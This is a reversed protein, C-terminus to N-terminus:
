GTPFAPRPAEVEAAHRSAIRDAADARGTDRLRELYPGLRGRVHWGGGEALVTDLPDVGSATRSLCDDRWAALLDDCDAVVDPRDAALDTQEHPDAVVDYLAVEPLDHYGDHYTRLCLWDGVRVSRQVTWAAQSVVLHPRGGSGTAFSRGDWGEPVNGGLQELATAALDVQYHLDADVSGPTAWEAGPWRVVAPLRSVAQDATQHDCYIGLEGLTEGHDASVLIATEDYVGLDTLLDLARGIHDDAYRVGTDYGDFMRRVQDEDSLSTPQRPFSAAFGETPSFGIAEQASHPGPREWHRARVEETLWAPLPDSAFPDGYDAPTRYPTHPDWVHVHLFWDDREGNRRLWDLATSIVQDATEMGMLGPNYAEAFGAYWHFASHREAFSSITVTRVGAFGMRRAWSTLGHRSQFWRDAGDIVPDAAAGGHNIAGNRIGFRGTCLASRSPLCPTDSAYLNDFRVGEAAVADIAPSTARHYGYCGLHDARLTDVDFYLLRM